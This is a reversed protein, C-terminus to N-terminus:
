TYYQAQAHWLQHYQGERDALLSEHGGLQVIRGAEFVAIKDCFRCSALRHSIYVATKEGAIENFKSYVEYESIPDLAATPEDLVLFPADKYLARAMAIKQAEGGSIEVGNEDFDQYLCSELGKPMAAFFEDGLGAQRLCRVVRERDYSADAAVNQGLGFSFLAFDQFVVSFLSLYEGYDYKRIDVGNLLIEGETPDYLRCMLKIFTTKGSGNRGVVALKEGVRFKLNVHHLAYAESDPYRFSVDRFEVFYENDDRKEVTLTGRYMPNGTSERNEAERRSRKGRYMGKRSNGGFSLQERHNGDADGWGKRDLYQLILDLAEANEWLLTLQGTLTTFGMIFQSIGGIYQVINGVSFLGALARIGVTLYIFLNMAFAAAAGLGNYRFEIGKMKKIPTRGKALLEGMEKRILSGQCYLRIDKGSHYTDIYNEMYYGYVQNLPVLGAFAEFSKKTSRSVTWLSVVINALILIGLLASAWPSCFFDTLASGSDGSGRQFFVASFISVAFLISFLSQIGTRVPLVLNWLGMNNVMEMQRIQERLAQVEHSEVDGYSLEMMKRSLTWKYRTNLINQKMNVLRELLGGLGQCVLNLGAMWVVMALLYGMSRGELLYNLMKASLYINIFPSLAKLVAQGACCLLFRPSLSEMLRLGRLIIRMKRKKNDTKKNGM